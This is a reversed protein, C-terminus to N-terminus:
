YDAAALGAPYGAAGPRACTAQALSLRIAPQAAHAHYRQQMPSCAQCTVATVRRARTLSQWSHGARSCAADAGRASLRQGPHVARTELVQGAAPHTRADSRPGSSSASPPVAATRWLSTRRVHRRGHKAQAACKHLVAHRCVTVPQHEQETSRCVASEDSCAPLCRQCGYRYGLPHAAGPAGCVAHWAPLLEFTARLALGKSQLQLGTCAACAFLGACPM